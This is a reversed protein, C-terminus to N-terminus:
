KNSAVCCPRVSVLVPNISKDVAVVRRALATWERACVSPCGRDVGVGALGVRYSGGAMCMCAGATVGSSCGSMILILKWALHVLALHNQMVGSGHSPARVHPPVLLGARKSPLSSRHNPLPRQQGPEAFGAPQLASGSRQGFLLSTAAEGGSGSHVKGRFNSGIRRAGNGVARAFDSM